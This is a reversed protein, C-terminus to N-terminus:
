RLVVVWTGVFLFPALPLHVHRGGRRVVAVAGAVAGAIVFAVALAAVAGTWDAWGAHIGILPALTVDGAGLDGRSVVDLVKM